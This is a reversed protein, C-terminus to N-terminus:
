ENHKLTLVKATLTVGVGAGNFLEISCVVLIQQADAPIPILRNEGVDWSKGICSAAKRDPQKLDLRKFNM